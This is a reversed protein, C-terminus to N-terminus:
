NYKKYLLMMYKLKYKIYKNYYIDIDDEIAIDIEIDNEINYSGGNQTLNNKLINNVSHIKNNFISLLASLMEDCDKSKKLKKIFILIQLKGLNQKLLNFREKITNNKIKIEFNKIDNDSAIMDNILKLKIDTSEINQEEISLNEDIIKELISKEIELKTAIQIAIDKINIYNTGDM